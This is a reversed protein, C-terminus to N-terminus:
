RELRRKVSKAVGTVVSNVLFKKVEAKNDQAFQIASKVTDVGGEALKMFREPDKEALGLFGLATNRIKTELESAPRQYRVQKVRFGEWAIPLDVPESTYAVVLVDNEVNLTEVEGHRREDALERWLSRAASKASPPARRSRRTSSKKRVM